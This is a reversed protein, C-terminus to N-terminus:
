DAMCANGIRWRRRQEAWLKLYVGALPVNGRIPEPGFQPIPLQVLLVSRRQPFQM